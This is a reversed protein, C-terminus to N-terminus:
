FPALESAPMRPEAQSGRLLVDAVLAPNDTMPVHGCNPLPVLRAQPLREAAIQAQHPLLLRDRTGWAITVQIDRPVTEAFPVAAALIANMASSSDLFAEMDGRAQEPRVQSPKAVILAYIVARGATSRSLAPALPRVLRGGAQMAKNVAIAYRLEAPTTWFGAPSLATVSAARGIAAIELALLGGLSCGALHPRELALEDLLGIVEDM